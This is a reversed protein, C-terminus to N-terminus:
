IREFQCDTNTSQFKNFFQNEESISFYVSVKRKNM